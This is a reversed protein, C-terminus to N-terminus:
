AKKPCCHLLRVTQRGEPRAPSQLHYRDPARRQSPLGLPAHRHAPRCFRPDDDRFCSVCSPDPLGVLFEDTSLNHRDHQLFGRLPHVVRQVRPRRLKIAQTQSEENRLRARSPRSATSITSYGEMIDELSDRSWDKLRESNVRLHLGLGPHGRRHCPRAVLARTRRCTARRQAFFRRSCCRSSRSTIKLDPVDDGCYDLLNIHSEILDDMRRPELLYHHYLHELLVTQGDALTLALGEPPRVALQPRQHKL